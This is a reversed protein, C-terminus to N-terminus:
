ARAPSCLLDGLATLDDLSPLADAPPREARVFPALVAWALHLEHEGTPGPDLARGLCLSWFVATLETVLEPRDPAHDILNSLWRRVVGLGEIERRRFDELDARAALFTRVARFGQGESTRLMARLRAFVDLVQDRPTGVHLGAVQAGFRRLQERYAAALMGELHGYRRYATARSCDLRAAIGEVTTRELGVDGVVSFVAWALAGESEWRGGM